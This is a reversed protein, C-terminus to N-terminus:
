SSSPTSSRGRTRRRARGGGAARATPAFVDRGHFTPSVPDRRFMSSRSGSSGRAAAAGGAVARRQGARRVPQRGAEILIDAREGGVGPDVVAVHITGPPFLPAAQALAVAGAAVDMPPVGHRSTSWSRRAARAVVRRGEDRRRLRRRPRFRHYVDRNAMPKLSLGRRTDCSARSSIMRPWISLVQALASSPARRDTRRRSSAPRRSRGTRCGPSSIRASRRLPVLSRVITELLQPM